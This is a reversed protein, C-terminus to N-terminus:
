TETGQRDPPVFPPNSPTSPTQPLPTVTVTKPPTLPSPPQPMVIGAGSARWFGFDTMKPNLTNPDIDIGLLKNQPQQLVAWRNTAAYEKSRSWKTANSLWPFDLFQVGRPNEQGELAFLLAGCGYAGLRYKSDLTARFSQFYPICLKTIQNNSTDNDVTPYVATGAPVGLQDLYGSCADGDRRGTTANIDDHAFNDSGGWGECVFGVDIGQAHLADIHAKRVTKDGHLNIPSIYLIAAILGQAKLAEAKQAVLAPQPSDIVQIAM